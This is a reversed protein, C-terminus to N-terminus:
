QKIEISHNVNNIYNSLYLSTVNLNEISNSICYEFGEYDITVRLNKIRENVDILPEEEICKIFLFTSFIDESKQGVDLKFGNEYLLKDIANSLAISEVVNLGLRKDVSRVFRDLSM